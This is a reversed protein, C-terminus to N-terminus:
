IEIQTARRLLLFGIFQLGLAIGLMVNGLATTFLKSWIDPAILFLFFGVAMPWVSLIISTLRQSATLTLIEGRIRDRERLTEAVNDLVESLNGGTTRQVLIATVMMDLDQSGARRSMDVLAQQMTGGLNVDNVLLLLEERLPDGVQGLSNEIGQQFSFGARLAASLAPLFDILQTELTATRRRQVWRVYFPPVMFAVIGAIVGFVVGWVSFQMVLAFLGFAVLGLVIRVLLYEGVRLRVHARELSLATSDAWESNSLLRQLTPISSRSRRSPPVKSSTAEAELVPRLERLRREGERGSRPTFLWVAAAAVALFLFLAALFEIM